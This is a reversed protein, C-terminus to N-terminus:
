VLSKQVVQWDNMTYVIEWLLKLKFIAASTVTVNNLVEKMVM